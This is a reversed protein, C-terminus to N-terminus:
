YEESRIRQYSGRSTETDERKKPLRRLILLILICPLIEVLVYYSVIFADNIDLIQFFTSISLFAFRLLFCTTCTITVLVVERVKKTKGSTEIPFKKLMSYLRGGYYIFGIASLGSIGAM